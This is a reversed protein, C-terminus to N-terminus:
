AAVGDILEDLQRRPMELEAALNDRVESLRREGSLCRSVNEVWHNHREAFETLSLGKESLLVKIKERGTLAELVRQDLANIRTM